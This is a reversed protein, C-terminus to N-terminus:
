RERVHFSCVSASFIRPRPQCPHQQDAGLRQAVSLRGADADAEQLDGANQAIVAVLHRHQRGVGAQADLRERRLAFHVVDGEHLTVDAVGIAIFASRLRILSRPSKRILPTIPMSGVTVSGIYM